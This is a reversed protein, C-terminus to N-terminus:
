SVEGGGSYQPGGGGPAEAEGNILAVATVIAREGEEAWASPAIGTRIALQV